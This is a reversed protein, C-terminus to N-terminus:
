HFDTEGVHGIKPLSHWVWLGGLISLGSTMWFVSHLDFKSAVLGGTVPGLMSGFSVFSNNYGYVRSTMESPTAKRLLSNVSPLLGGICLGQLFRLAVLQWVSTVLSQPFIIIAATFLCILLVKQSGIRDGLKGLRPAAFVNALGMAATVFGAFFAVGDKSGILKQVYIPLVPNVSLLAFQIMITTFFLAPLPQTSFIVKFDERISSQAKPPPPTFDEQVVFTVILTAIIILCGTIVFTPRFGFAEAILGGFFPGMDYGSGCFIAFDWIPSVLGATLFNAGFIIGAWTTVLGQNTIGLDHQIFLPLFPM